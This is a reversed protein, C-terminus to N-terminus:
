APGPTRRPTNRFIGSSRNRRRLPAIPPTELIPRLSVCSRRPSCRAFRTSFAGPSSPPPCRKPIFEGEAVRKEMEPRISKGVYDRLAKEVQVALRSQQDAMTDIHEGTWRWTEVLVVALFVVALLGMGILLGAQQNRGPLFPAPLGHFGGSSQGQRAAENAKRCRGRWSWLRVAGGLVAAAILSGLVSRRRTAGVAANWDNALSDIGVVMLVKGSNPDCVPALACVFTGYEDTAPGFAAPKGTAFVQFDDPGPKEYATGPPSAM